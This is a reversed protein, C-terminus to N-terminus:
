SQRSAIWASVGAFRPLQELTMSSPLGLGPRRRRCFVTRAFGSFRSQKRRGPPPMSSTRRVGPRIARRSRMSQPSADVVRQLADQTPAQRCDELLTASTVSLLMRLRCQEGQLKRQGGPPPTGAHRGIDNNSRAAPLQGGSAGCADQGGVLGQPQNGAALLVPAARWELRSRGQQREKGGDIALYVGSRVKARGVPLSTETMRGASVRRGLRNGLPADIEAQSQAASIRGASQKSKFGQRRRKRCQAAQVSGANVQSPFRQRRGVAATNTQGGIGPLLLTEPRDFALPGFRLDSTLPRLDPSVSFRQFSFLQFRRLM